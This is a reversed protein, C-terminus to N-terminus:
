EQRKHLYKNKDVRAFDQALHFLSQGMAMGVGIRLSGWGINLRSNAWQWSKIPHHHHKEGWRVLNGYMRWCWGASTEPPLSAGPPRPSAAAAAAAVVRHEAAALEPVGLTGSFTCGNRWVFFYQTYFSRLLQFYNLPISGPPTGYVISRVYNFPSSLTSAMVAAVLNSFFMCTECTGSGLLKEGSAASGKEAREEEYWPLKTSANMVVDDFFLKWSNMRRLTEYVIGFVSDRIMTTVCGRFFIPVGGEKFMHKATQWFTVGRADSNWMRFKVAQLTNLALGNVSGAFLGILMSNLRPSTEAQCVQPLCRGIYLRASDQWFMYSAGVLTRYVAANM